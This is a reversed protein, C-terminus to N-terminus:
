WVYVAHLGSFPGLFATKDGTVKVKVKLNTQALSWVHKGHSNSAFGNLLEQSIEYVLLHEGTASIPSRKAVITMSWFNPPQLSTPNADLLGASASTSDQDIVM